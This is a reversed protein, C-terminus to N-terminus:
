TPCLSPRNKPQFVKVASRAPEDELLLRWAGFAGAGALVVAVLAALLWRIKRARQQPLKSKMKGECDPM